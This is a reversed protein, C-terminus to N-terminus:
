FRPERGSARRADTLEGVHYMEHLAVVLLM